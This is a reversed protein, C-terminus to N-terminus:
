HTPWGIVPFSQLPRLPNLSQMKAFGKELWVLFLQLPPPPYLTRMHDGLGVCVWMSLSASAPPTKASVSVHNCPPEALSPRFHNCPLPEPPFSQLPHPTHSIIYMPTLLPFHYGAGLVCAAIKCAPSIAKHSTGHPPM